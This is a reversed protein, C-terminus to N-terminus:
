RAGLASAVKGYADPLMKAARLMLARDGRRVAEDIYGVLLGLTRVQRWTEEYREAPVGYADLDLPESLVQKWAVAADEYAKGIVSLDASKEKAAEAVITGMPVWFAKLGARAPLENAMSVGTLGALFLTLLFKLM